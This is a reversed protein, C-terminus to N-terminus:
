RIPAFRYPFFSSLFLKKKKTSENKRIGFLADYIELKKKGKKEVIKGCTKWRKKAGM